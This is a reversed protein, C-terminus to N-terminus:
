RQPRTGPSITQTALTMALAIKTNGGSPDRATSDGFSRPMMTTCAVSPTAKLRDTPAMWFTLRLSASAALTMAADSCLCRSSNSRLGSGITMRSWRVARKMPTFRAAVSANPYEFSSSREILVNSRAKGSSMGSKRESNSCAGGSPGLSTNEGPMHRRRRFSPEAMCTSSLCRVLEGDIPALAGERERAVDGLPGAHLGGHAVCLFLPVGKEFARALAKEDDVLGVPHAEDAAGEQTPGGAVHPTAIYATEDHVFVYGRQPGDEVRDTAGPLGCGHLNAHSRRVAPRRSVFPPAQRDPAPAGNGHNEEDEGVDRPPDVLLLLQAGRLLFGLVCALRLVPEDGRERVLKACRQRGHERCGGNRFGAIRFTPFQEGHDAAVDFDFGTEDVVQEVYAAEDAALEREVRLEDVDVAKKLADDRDVLRFGFGLAHDDLNAQLGATRPHPGIRQADLLGQPIDHLVGELERRRASGDGDVGPVRGWTAKGDRHAIGTLADRLLIQFPDEQGELLASVPLRAPTKAETQRDAFADHVCRRALEGDFARAGLAAGGEGDIQGNAGGGSRVLRM